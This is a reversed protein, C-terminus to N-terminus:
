KKSKQQGYYAWLYRSALSRHPKWSDAVEELAKGLAKGNGAVKYLEMVMKQIVLDDKPFVDPRHLDFILVMQVTWRGIGKVQTLEQILREDEWKHGHILEEAREVFYGSLAHLYNAKQNSIGLNRLEAAPIERLQYPEPYAGGWHTLFKKKISHAASTSLQQSIIASCLASFLPRPTPLDVLTLSDQIRRMIPESFVVQEKIM